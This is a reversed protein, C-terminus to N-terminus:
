GEENEKWGPWGREAGMSWAGAEGRHKGWRTWMRDTCIWWAKVDWHCEWVRQSVERISKATGRAGARPRTGNGMFISLSAQKFFRHGVTEGASM